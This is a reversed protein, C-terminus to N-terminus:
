GVCVYGINLSLKLVVPSCQALPTVQFLSFRRASSSFVVSDPASCCCQGSLSPALCSSASFPSLLLRGGARLLSDSCCILLLLSSATLPLLPEVIAASSHSFALLLPLIPFLGLREVRNRIRTPSGSKSVQSFHIPSVSWCILVPSIM